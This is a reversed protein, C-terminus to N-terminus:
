SFNANHLFDNVQAKEAMSDLKIKELSRLIAKRLWGAIFWALIWVVVAMALKPLFEVISYVLNASRGSEVPLLDIFEM